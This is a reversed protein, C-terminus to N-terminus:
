KHLGLMGAIWVAVIFATALYATPSVKWPRAAKIALHDEPDLERELRMLSVDDVHRETVFVVKGSDDVVEHVAGTCTCRMTAEIMAHNLGVTNEIHLSREDHDDSRRVHYM